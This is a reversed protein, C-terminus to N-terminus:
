ISFDLMLILCGLCDLVEEAEDDVCRGVGNMVVLGDGGLGGASPAPPVVPLTRELSKVCAGTGGAASSAAAAASDAAAAALEGAAPPLLPGLPPPSPPAFCALSFCSFVLKRM